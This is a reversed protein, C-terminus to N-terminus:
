VLAGAFLQEFAARMYQKRTYKFDFLPVTPRVMARGSALAAIQDTELSRFVLKARMMEVRLGERITIGAAIPELLLRLAETDGGWLQYGEELGQGITVVQRYFAVLQDRAAYRWWQVSNLISKWQGAFKPHDRVLIGLDIQREFVGGLGAMVLTDPSVLVTDQDFAESELYALRIENLWLQLRQSTTRYRFANLPVVTTADTLVDVSCSCTQEVSHNLMRLADIWDFSVIAEAEPHAEVPFAQYPAVVRM